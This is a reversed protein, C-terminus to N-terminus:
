TSGCTLADKKPNKYSACLGSTVSIMIFNLSIKKEKQYVTIVYSGYIFIIIRYKNNHDEKM